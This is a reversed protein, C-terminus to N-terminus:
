IYGSSGSSCLYLDLTTYYVYLLDSCVQFAFCPLKEWPYIFIFNSKYKM